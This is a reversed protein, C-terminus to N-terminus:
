VIWKTRLHDEVAQRDATSLVSDYKLVEACHGKLFEALGNNAGIVTSGSAFAQDNTGSGDATGNKYFAWAGAAGYTFTVVTPTLAALGTTSTAIGVVGQVNVTQKGDTQDVRHQLANTSAGLITNYRALDDVSVVALVTTPKTNCEQASGLWDDTGDFWVAPKGNVGTAKYLPRKAATAQTADKAFGSSDPWTAIPDGDVATIADAKLWLLLGAVDAPSFAATPAGMARRRMALTM